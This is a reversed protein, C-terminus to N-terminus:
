SEFGWRFRIHAAFQEREAWNLSSAPSEEAEDWFLLMSDFVADECEALTGHCQGGGFLDAVFEGDVDTCAIWALGDSEYVYGPRDPAMGDLGTAAEIDDTWRRSSVFDSLTM